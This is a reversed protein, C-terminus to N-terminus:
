IDRAAIRVPKQYWALFQMYRNFLNVKYFGKQAESEAYDRYTSIDGADCEESM